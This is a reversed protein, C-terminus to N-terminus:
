KEFLSWFVLMWILASGAFPNNKKVFIIRRLIVHEM